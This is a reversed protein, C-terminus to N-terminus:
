KSTQGSAQQEPFASVKISQGFRTLIAIPAALPNAYRCSSQLDKHMVFQKEAHYLRIINRSTKKGTELDDM